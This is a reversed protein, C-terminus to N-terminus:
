RTIMSEYLSAEDARGAERAELALRGLAADRLPRVADRTEEDGEELRASLLALADLDRGLRALVAALDLVVGLDAPNARVKASLDEVRAEDLATPALDTATIALRSHDERAIPAAPAAVPAPPAAARPRAIPALARAREGAGAIAETAEAAVRFAKGIASDRPALRLAAALHLKAEAPEGRETALEAAFRLDDIAARPRATPGREIAERMRSFALAAAARDGLKALCRGELGRAAAHESADPPVARTRAIALPLDGLGDALVHALALSADWRTVGRREALAIARALVEAARAAHGLTFLSEGLGVLADEHTPRYRLAREFLASARAAHGSKAFLRGAALLASQKAHAPGASAELSEAEALAARADGEGLAAELKKWRIAASTPARAGAQALLARRTAADDSLAAAEALCMAALPAYAERAAAAEFAVRAADREGVAALLTGGLAGADVAPLATVLTALAAEAREGVARDLDALRVAIERAHPARELAGLYRDRALSLDGRVLADDAEECLEATEIALLSADDLETAAAGLEAATSWGEVTSELAAWGVDSTVPTRAGARPMVRRLLTAAADELRLVSGARTALGRLATEAARLAVAHAPAGLGLGRAGHVVLRVTSGAPAWALEFALAAEGAQAGVMVGTGSPLLAMFAPESGLSADIRDALWRALPERLVRLEMRVLAGRRHRFRPVGGSLDIPFTLGPLSATAAEVILAGLVAPRDLEM